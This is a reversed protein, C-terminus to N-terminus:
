PLVGTEVRLQPVGDRNVALDVRLDLDPLILSAGWGFLILEGEGFVVGGEFFVSSLVRLHLPIWGWRPGLVGSLDLRFLHQSILEFRRELSALLFREGAFAYPYSRMGLEFSFGALDAPNDLEGLRLEVTTQDAWLRTSSFFTQFSREPSELPQGFLFEGRSELAIGFPLPLHILGKLHLYRVEPGEDEGEGPWLRGLFGTGRLQSRRLIQAVLAGEEGGLLRNIAILDATVRLGLEGQRGLVLSEPWDGYSLGLAKLYEVQTRFRAARSTFGWAGGAGLEWPGFALHLDLGLLLGDRESHIIVPRLNGSVEQGEASVCLLLLGILVAAYRNVRLM